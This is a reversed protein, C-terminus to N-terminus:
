WRSRPEHAVVRGGPVVEEHHEAAGGRRQGAEDEDGEREVEVPDDSIGEVAKSRADRHGAQRRHHHEAARRQHRGLGVLRHADLRMEAKKTQNFM